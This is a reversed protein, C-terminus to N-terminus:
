DAHRWLYAMWRNSHGHTIYRVLKVSLTISCSVQTVYSQCKGPKRKLLHEAEVGTIESVTTFVHSCHVAAREMCYRHYIQRDGAEKDLNFQFIILTSFTSLPWLSNYLNLIPWNITTQKFTQSRGKKLYINLLILRNLDIYILFLVSIQSDLNLSCKAERFILNKTM